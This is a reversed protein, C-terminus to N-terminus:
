FSQFYYCTVYHDISKLADFSGGSRPFSFCVYKNGVVSWSSIELYVNEWHSITYRVPFSLLFFDLSWIVHIIFRFGSTKDRCLGQTAVLDPTLSKM